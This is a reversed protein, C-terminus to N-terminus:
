LCLIKNWERKDIDDGITGNRKAELIEDQIKSRFHGPLRKWNKILEAVVTSPAYTRRGLAYRFAMLVMLPNVKVKRM